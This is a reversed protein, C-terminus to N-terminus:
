NQILLTGLNDNKYTLEIMELLGKDGLLLLEPILTAPNNQLPSQLQTHFTTRKKHFYSERSEKQHLLHMKERKLNIPNHPQHALM